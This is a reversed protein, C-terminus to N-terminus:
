YAKRLSLAKILELFCTHGNRTAFLPSSLASPFFLPSLFNEKATLNTKEFLSYDDLTMKLKNKPQNNHIYPFM